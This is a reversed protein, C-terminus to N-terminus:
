NVEGKKRRKAKKNFKVISCQMEKRKKQMKHLQNLAKTIM